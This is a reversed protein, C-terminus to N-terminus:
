MLSIACAARGQTNIRRKHIHIHISPSKRLLQRYYISRTFCMIKKSPPRRRSLTHPLPTPSPRAMKPALGPVPDAGWAAGTPRLGEGRSRPDTLVSKGTSTRMNRTLFLFTEIILQSKEEMKFLPQPESLPMPSGSASGPEAEGSGTGVRAGLNGPRSGPGERQM